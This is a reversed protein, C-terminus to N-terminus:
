WSEWAWGDGVSWAVMCNLEVGVTNSSVLALSVNCSGFWRDYISGFQVFLGINDQHTQPVSVGIQARWLFLVCVIGVMTGLLIPTRKKTHM